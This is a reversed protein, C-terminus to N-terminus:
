NDGYLWHASHVTDTQRDSFSYFKNESLFIQPRNCRMSSMDGKMFDYDNYMLRATSYRYYILGCNITHRCGIKLGM